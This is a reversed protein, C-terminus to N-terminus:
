NPCPPVYTQYQTTTGYNNLYKGILVTRYGSSQLWTAITSNEEGLDHFKIFGGDPASNTPVGHNHVYQGRLMSVRSPCCISGVVFYNEFTVGKAAIEAQLIPMFAAEVANMDDTMILIFNPQTAGAASMAFALVLGALLLWRKTISTESFYTPM